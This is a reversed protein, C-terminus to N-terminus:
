NQSIWILDPRTQYVLLCFDVYDMEKFDREVPIGLVEDETVVLDQHLAKLQGEFNQMWVPFFFIDKMIDPTKAM